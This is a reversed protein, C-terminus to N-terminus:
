AWTLYFNLFVDGDTAPDAFFGFKFTESPVFITVDRTWSADTFTLSYAVIRHITAGTPNRIEGYVLLEMSEDGSLGSVKALIHMRTFGHSYYRDSMRSGWIPVYENWWVCVQSSVPWNTVTVNKTPDGFSGFARASAAVDIMDIDGDDNIDLWPDYYGVLSNTPAALIMTLCLASLVGIVFSRNNLLIDGGREWEIFLVIM